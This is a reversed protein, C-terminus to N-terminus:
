KANRFDEVHFQLEVPLDSYTDQSATIVRRPVELGDDKYADHELTARLHAILKLCLACKTKSCTKRQFFEKIKKIM